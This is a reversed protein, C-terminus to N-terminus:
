VLKNLDTRAENGLAQLREHEKLKVSNEFCSEPATKIRRANSSNNKKLDLERGSGRPRGKGRFVSAPSIATGGGRGTGTVNMFPWSTHINSGLM